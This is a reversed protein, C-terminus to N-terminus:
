FFLDGTPHELADLHELLLEHFKGYEGKRVTGKLIEHLDDRSVNSIDNEYRDGMTKGLDAFEDISISTIFIQESPKIGQLIEKLAYKNEVHVLSRENILLCYIPKECKDERLSRAHKLAGGLQKKYDELSPQYKASVELIVMFNGYDIQVDPVGGQAFNRPVTICNDDDNSNKPRCHSVLCNAHVESPNDVYSFMSSTFLEMTLAKNISQLQM